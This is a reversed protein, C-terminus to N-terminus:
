AGRCARCGGEGAASALAEEPSGPEADADADAQEDLRDEIGAVDQRMSLVQNRLEHIQDGVGRVEGRLLMYAIAPAVLALGTLLTAKSVGPILDAAPPAASPAPAPAPAQQGLPRAMFRGRTM